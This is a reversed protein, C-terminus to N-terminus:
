RDVGMAVDGPADKGPIKVAEPRTHTANKPSRFFPVESRRINTSCPDVMGGTRRTTPGHRRARFRSM